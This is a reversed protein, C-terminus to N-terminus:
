KKFEELFKKEKPNLSDVGKEEIKELIDDLTFTEDVKDEMTSTEDFEIILSTSDRTSKFLFDKLEIPLNASYLTEREFLFYFKIDEMSILNHLEESLEKRGSESEFIVIISGSNDTIYRVEFIHPSSQILDGCFFEIEEYDKFNSYLFLIFTKM